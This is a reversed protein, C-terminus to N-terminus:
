SSRRALQYIGGTDLDGSRANLLAKNELLEARVGSRALLTFRGNHQTQRRLTALRTSRATVPFQTGHVELLKDLMIAYYTGTPMLGGARANLHCFREILAALGKESIPTEEDCCM